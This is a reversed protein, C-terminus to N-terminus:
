AVAKSMPSGSETPPPSRTSARRRCRSISSSTPMPPSLARTAAHLHAAEFERRLPSTNIDGEASVDGPLHPDNM